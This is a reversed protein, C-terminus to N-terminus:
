VTHSRNNERTEVTWIQPVRRNQGSIMELKIKLAFLLSLLAAPLEVILGFVNKRIAENVFGFVFLFILLNSYIISLYFNYFVVGFFGFFTIIEISIYYIIIIVKWDNWFSRDSESENSSQYNSVTKLSKDYGFFTSIFTLVIFTTLVSKFILFGKSGNNPRNPMELRNLEIRKQV